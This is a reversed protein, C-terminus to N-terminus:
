APKGTVLLWLGDFAYDQGTRRQYEDPKDFEEDTIAQVLKEIITSSTAPFRRGLAALSEACATRVDNDPDLLGRWLPLIITEDCPAIQGLIQAADRRVNWEEDQLAQILATIVEPSAQGLQGLSQAARSRVPGEEDQLAQVLATIVEPFTRLSRPWDRCCGDNLGFFIENEPPFGM